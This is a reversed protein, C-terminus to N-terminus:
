YCFLIGSADHYRHGDGDLLAVSSLANNYMIASAILPKSLCLMHSTIITCLYLVAPQQYRWVSTKEAQHCASARRSINHHQLSASAGRLAGSATMICCM